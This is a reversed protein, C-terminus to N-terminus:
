FDAALTVAPGSGPEANGVLRQRWDLHVRMNGRVKYSLRPGADIRYLGPQAGAWMGFGGSLPGYIPRTLSYGGDVFFDRRRAGVVGAQTYADLTFGWGVPAQYVGSELFLAFASRGGGLRGIAHRREATLSLPLTRFPTVRVGGAVEGGRGGVPSSTRLSLALRRDFNYMLRAGAQSGGLTGGTALADPRGILGERGRLLAWTTLQLRDIKAVLTEPPLSQQPAAAASRRMPAGASALRSLPWDDLQPIPSYFLPAPDPQIVTLPRRPAPPAYAAHQFPLPAAPAAVPYYYVPMPRPMMSSAHLAPAAAAPTEAWEAAATLQPPPLAPFETTAIAPVDAVSAEQSASPSAAARRLTFGDSGPVMGLSVARLGAWGVVALVLFRVSASM